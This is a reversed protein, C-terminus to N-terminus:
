LAEKLADENDKIANYYSELTKVFKSDRYLAEVVKKYHKVGINYIKNACDYTKDLVYEDAKTTYLRREIIFTPTKKRAM